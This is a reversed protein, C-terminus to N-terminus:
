KSLVKKISEVYSMQPLKKGTILASFHEAAIEEIHILYQTNQGVQAFLDPVTELEMILPEGDKLLPSKHADDGTLMLLGVSAYDGMSNHGPLYDTKSYFVLAADQKTGDPSKVTIYHAIFPCDPNTIVRNHLAPKYVVNNCPRFGFLAYANTRMSANYRSIVHWLEHAVLGTSIPQAETNLMIRNARTWGEAGFEEAATTKIFKVTDPMHLFLREAQTKKYIEAFAARIATAEQPPWDRVNAASAALYDAEKFNSGSLRVALDFPTHEATYADPQQSLAAASASDLLAITIKGFTSYATRASLSSTCLLALLLAFLRM